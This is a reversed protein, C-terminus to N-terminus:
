FKDNTLTACIYARELDRLKTKFKKKTRKLEKIEEKLFIIEDVRSQDDRIRKVGDDISQQFAKFAEPYEADRKKWIERAELIMEWTLVRPELDLNLQEM